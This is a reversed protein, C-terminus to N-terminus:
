NQIGLIEGPSYVTCNSNNHKNIPEGLKTNKAISTKEFSIIKLMKLM